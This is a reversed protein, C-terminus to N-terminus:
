ESTRSGQRMEDILAVARHTQRAASCQEARYIARLDDYAHDVDDNFLLYHYEGYHTLEDKAKALRREVVDSADTGRSRLRRALEDMSPPLVFVMVTDSRLEKNSRLATAGQWDIDFLVDRGAEINERITSWATGYRNGHVEAWEAFEGQQVMEEFREVRVFHYDVGDVENSRPPRTTVSVSFALNPFEAQLRRCLTTKGAGSPSSVVFLLGRAARVDQNSSM